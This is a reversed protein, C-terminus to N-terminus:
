RYGYMLYENDRSYKAPIGLHWSCNRSRGTHQAIDIDQVTQDPVNLKRIEDYFLLRGKTKSSNEPVL